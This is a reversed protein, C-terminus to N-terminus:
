SDGASEKDSGKGKYMYMKKDLKLKKNNQEIYEGRENSIQISITMLLQLVTQISDQRPIESSLCDSDYDEMKVNDLNEPCQFFVILNKLAYQTLSRQGLGLVINTGSRLVIFCDEVTKM